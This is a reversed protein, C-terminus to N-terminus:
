LLALLERLMARPREFVDGYTFRRFQDGRAYAQRERRRDAEWAHRSNHFRYSDLEVTLMEAPWRCDVRRGDAPRNTIPLPLGSERLRELFRAELESLTVPEEGTLVHRLKAAGPTNPRRRLAFEVQAPITRYKVGAEHCARALQLQPSSPTLDVLTLPVATIPIGRHITLEGPDFRRRRTRLGKIRRATPASVEPAPPRGGILGWLWAAARGSLVAGKGCALVAALYSSAVSPARHGVRYVGPYEPILAGMRVRSRIQTASLGAALLEQRTAIGKLRSAVRALIASANSSRPDM